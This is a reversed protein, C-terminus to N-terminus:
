TLEATAFLVLDVVLLAVLNRHSVLIQQLGTSTRQQKNPTQMTMAKRLDYRHTNM